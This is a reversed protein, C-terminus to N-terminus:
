RGAGARLQMLEAEVRYYKAAALDADSANVGHLRIMLDELETMRKLHGRVAKPGDGVALNLDWEATMWRKSWVYIHEAGYKDPDIPFQKKCEEYAHRAAAVLEQSSAGPGPSDPRKDIAIAAGITLSGVAILGIVTKKTTRM